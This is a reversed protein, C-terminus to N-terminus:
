PSPQSAPVGGIRGELGRGVGAGVADIATGLGPRPPARGIASNLGPAIIPLSDRILGTIERLAETGAKMEEVYALQQQVQVQRVVAADNLLEFKDIEGHRGATDTYELKDFKVSNNKSDYFEFTHTFPNFGFRTKPASMDPLVCGGLMTIGVVIGIRMRM